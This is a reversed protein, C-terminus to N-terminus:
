WANICSIWDKDLSHMSDSIQEKLLTLLENWISDSKADYCLQVSFGQIGGEQSPVPQVLGVEVRDKYRSNSIINEINASLLEATINTQTRIAYAASCMKGANSGNVNMCGADFNVLAWCCLVVKCLINM